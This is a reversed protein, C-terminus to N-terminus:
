TIDATLEASLLFWSILMILTLLANDIITDIVLVLNDVNDVNIVHTNDVITGIVLFLDKNDVKGVANSESHVYM